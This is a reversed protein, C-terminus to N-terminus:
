IISSRPPLPARAVAFTAGSTGVVLWWVLTPISTGVAVITLWFAARDALVQYRSRSTQAEEVLRMIQSLTTADGVRSVEVSLAGEGNVAGAIAEDGEAKSVPRSEGTLFAENMSSGGGVIVGDVPVQEGPRILVRDGVSILSVDVDTISGDAEELHAVSPVM